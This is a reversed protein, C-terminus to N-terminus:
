GTVVRRPQNTPSVYMSNVPLGGSASQTITSLGVFQFGVGDTVSLNLGSKGVSAGVSTIVAQYSGAAVSIGGSPGAKVMAGGPFAVKGGDAPDIEMGGATIKATAGDIVVQTAGAGVYIKGGEIRIGGSLFKGILTFIGSLTVDGALDGDGNFEWDGNQTWKGEAVVDGTIAGNGRFRWQGVLDLLAGSDLRLVGGIFRLMGNRVSSNELPRGSLLRKVDHQLNKIATALKRTTDDVM